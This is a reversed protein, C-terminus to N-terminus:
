NTTTPTTTPVINNSQVNSKLSQYNINFNLQNWSKEKMLQFNNWEMLDNTLGNLNEQTKKLTSGMNSIMPQSREIMRENLKNLDNHLQYFIRQYKIKITNELQENIQKLEKMRQTVQYINKDGNISDKGTTTNKSSNSRTLRKLFSDSQASNNVTNTTTTANATTTNNNVFYNSIMPNVQFENKLRSLVSSFYSTYSTPNEPSTTSNLPNNNLNNNNLNNNNLNNNNNLSSSSTKTQITPPPIVTTTTTTSQEKPEKTELIQQITEEEEEKQNETIDPKYNGQLLLIHPLPNSTMSGLAANMVFIYGPVLIDNFSENTDDLLHAAQIVLLKNKNKTVIINTTQHVIGCVALGSSSYAKKLTAKIRIGGCHLINDEGVHVPSLLSLQQTLDVVNLTEQDEERDTTIEYVVKSLFKHAM